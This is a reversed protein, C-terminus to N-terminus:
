TITDFGAGDRLGNILAMMRQWHTGRWYVRDCNACFSFQDHTQRIYVPLRDAVREPSVQALPHNCVSCRPLPPDPPPGVAVCVQRLQEDLTESKVLLARVGRRAALARDRTLILRDQARALRMLAFDDTDSLYATDYGLIRLWKALRGLMADALLRHGQTRGQNRTDSKIM